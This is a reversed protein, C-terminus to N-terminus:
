SANKDDTKDNDFQGRFDEIVEELKEVASELKPITDDLLKAVKILQEDMKRYLKELESM